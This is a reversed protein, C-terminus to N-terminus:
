YRKIGTQDAREIPYWVINNYRDNRDEDDIHELEYLHIYQLGTAEHM